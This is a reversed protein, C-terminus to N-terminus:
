KGPPSKSGELAARTRDVVEVGPPATFQFHRPDLDENVKLDTYHMNQIVGGQADVSTNKVLFGYEQDFYFLLKAFPAAQRPKAAIVYTKRGGVEEEAQLELVFDKELSEFLQQPAGVTQPNIDMRIALTEGMFQAVSYQYEGDVVTSSTQEFDMFTGDFDRTEKTILEVRAMLKEGQRLFEYTGTGVRGSSDKEARTTMEMHARLSKQKSWNAHIAKKVGGLDDARGAAVAAWLGTVVAIWRTRNM